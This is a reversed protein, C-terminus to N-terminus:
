QVIYSASKELAFMFFALRTFVVALGPNVFSIIYFYVPKKGIHKLFESIVPTFKVHESRVPASKEFAINVLAFKVSAIKFYAIKVPAKIVLAQKILASISFAMFKCNFM